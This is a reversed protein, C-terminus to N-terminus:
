PERRASQRQKQRETESSHIARQEQRVKVVALYRSTHIGWHTIKRRIKRNCIKGRIRFNNQNCILIVLNCFWGSRIAKHWGFCSSLMMIIITTRLHLFFVLLHASYWRVLTVEDRYCPIGSEWSGSELKLYNLGQLVRLAFEGFCGGDETGEPLGGACGGAGSAWFGVAESRRLKSLHAEHQLGSLRRTTSSEVMSARPSRHRSYVDTAPSSHRSLASQPTLKSNQVRPSQVRIASVSMLKCWGMMM